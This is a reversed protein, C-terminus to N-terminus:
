GARRWWTGRSQERCEDTVNTRLARAADTVSAFRRWYAAWKAGSRRAKRRRRRDLSSHQRWAQENRRRRMKSTVRMATQHRASWQTATKSARKVRAVRAPGGNCRAKAGNAGDADVGARREDSRMVSEACGCGGGCIQLCSGIWRRKDRVWVMMRQVSVMGLGSRRRESARAIHRRQKHTRIVSHRSQGILQKTSETIRRRQERYATSDTSKAIHVDDVGDVKRQKVTGNNQEAVDYDTEQRRLHDNIHEAVFRLNTTKPPRQDTGCRVKSKDDETTTSRVYSRSETLM